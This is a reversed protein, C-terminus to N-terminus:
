ENSKSCAYIVVIYSCKCCRRQYRCAEWSALYTTTM